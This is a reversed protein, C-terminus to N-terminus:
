ATNGLALICSDAALIENLLTDVNGGSGAYLDLRYLALVDDLQEIIFAAEFLLDRKRKDGDTDLLM